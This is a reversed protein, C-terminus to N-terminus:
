ANANIFAEYDDFVTTLAKRDARKWWQKELNPDANIAIEWPVNSGDNRVYMAIAGWCHQSSGDSRFGFGGDSFETEEVYEAHEHCVLGQRYTLNEIEAARERCTFTIRDPTDAFPCNKCPKKLDFRM